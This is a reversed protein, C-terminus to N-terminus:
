CSQCTQPHELNYQFNRMIKLNVKATISLIVWCLYYQTHWDQIDKMKAQILFANLINPYIRGLWFCEFYNSLLNYKHICQLKHFLLIELYLFDSILEKYIRPNLKWSKNLFYLDDMYIFKKFIIFDILFLSKCM